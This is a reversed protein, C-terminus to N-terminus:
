KSWATCAETDRTQSLPPWGGVPPAPEEITADMSAFLQMHPLTRLQELAPSITEVRWSRTYGYFQVGPLAQVIAIWKRVYTASYFDGSVHIRFTKTKQTAKQIHGIMADVFTDGQTVELNQAYSSKLRPMQFFGKQAYCGKCFDSKGPCTDGAPISFNPMKGLKANGPSMTISHTQM